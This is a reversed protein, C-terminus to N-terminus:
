PGACAFGQTIAAITTTGINMSPKVGRDREYSQAVDRPSRDAVTPSLSHTM